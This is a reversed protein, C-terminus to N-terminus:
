DGWFDIDGKTRQLYALSGVKTKRDLRGLLPHVHDGLVSASVDLRSTNNKQSLLETRKERADEGFADEMLEDAEEKPIQGEESGVDDSESEEEEESEGEKDVAPEFEDDSALMDEEEHPTTATVYWQATGAMGGPLYVAMWVLREFNRKWLQFFAPAPLTAHAMWRDRTPFKEYVDYDVMIKHEMTTWETVTGITSFGFFLASNTKIRTMEKRKREKEKKEKLTWILM